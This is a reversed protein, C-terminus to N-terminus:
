ILYVNLDVVTVRDRPRDVRLSHGSHRRGVTVAIDSNGISYKRYYILILIMNNENNTIKKINWRFIILKNAYHVPQVKSPHIIVFLAYKHECVITCEINM